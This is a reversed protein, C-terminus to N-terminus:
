YNLISIYTTQPATPSMMYCIPPPPPDGPPGTIMAAIPVEGPRQISVYIISRNHFFEQHSEPMASRIFREYRRITEDPVHAKQQIQLCAHGSCDLRSVPRQNSANIAHQHHDLKQPTRSTPQSPCPLRCRTSPAATGATCVPTSRNCQGHTANVMRQMPQLINSLASFRTYVNCSWMVTANSGAPAPRTGNGSALACVELVTCPHM